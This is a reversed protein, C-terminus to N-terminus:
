SIKFITVNHIGQGSGTKVTHKTGKCIKKKDIKSYEAPNKNYYNLTLM